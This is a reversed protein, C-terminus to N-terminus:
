FFDIRRHLLQRCAFADVRSAIVCCTHGDGCAHRMLDAAQVLRHTICAVRDGKNLGSFTRGVFDSVHQLAHTLQGDLCDVIGIVVSLARVKVQFELLELLLDHVNGFLSFPVTEGHETTLCAFTDSFHRNVLSDRVTLKALDKDAWGGLTFDRAHWSAFRL